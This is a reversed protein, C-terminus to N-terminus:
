EARDIFVYDPRLGLYWKKWYEIAELRQEPTPKVGLKGATLKRSLLRLGEEAIMPVYPDPDSLAFVLDPVQDLDDSRGLLKAAIRRASADRSVLLRSLRAIQRKRKEPDQSLKLDKQLLGVEVGATADKELMGLLNEVSAQEASVIREGVMKINSVNDPLGYGGRVVGADLQGISKQTSRILYLVSFATCVEAPYFDRKKEAGWSGSPDQFNALEEVGRNYWAPSKDQRGEVIEHFSEYREQSYRWYYYWYAGNFNSRNQYLRAAQLDGQLDTRTLTISRKKRKEARLDTRVFAAPIGEADDKPTRRIGFLGLMDGAIILAGVGATGLSKSIKEQAVLRGNGIIGQYGWTGSPDRTARLYDICAEVVDSPVDMGAQQMTWFALMVYQVQSTDGTPRDVYGFGGHSKQISILWERIQLVEPQYKGVDVSALLVGAVCVEYVFKDEGNASYSATARAIRQAAAIGQQVKALQADGTAKYLAYGVLAAQGGDLGRNRDGAKLFAVGRNVMEVVKPHTPSYQASAVPGTAGILISAIFCVITRQFSFGRALLRYAEAPQDDCVDRRLIRHNNSM